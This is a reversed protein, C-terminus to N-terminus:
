SFHLSRAVLLWRLSKSVETPRTRKHWHCVSSMGLSMIVYEHCVKSESSMSPLLSSMDIVHMGLSM